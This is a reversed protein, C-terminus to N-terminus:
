FVIKLIQRYEYPLSKQFYNKQYKKLLSALLM